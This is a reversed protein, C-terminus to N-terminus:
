GDDYSDVYQPHINRTLSSFPISQTIFPLAGGVMHAELSVLLVPSNLRM